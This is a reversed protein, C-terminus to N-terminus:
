LAVYLVSFLDQLLYNCYPPIPVLKTELPDTIALNSYDARWRNGALSQTFRLACFTQLPTTEQAMSIYM